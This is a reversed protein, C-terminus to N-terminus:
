KKNEEKDTFPNSGDIVLGDQLRIIRSSYNKALEKNHTVM